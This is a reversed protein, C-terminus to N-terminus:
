LLRETMNEIKQIVVWFFLGIKLTSMSLCM